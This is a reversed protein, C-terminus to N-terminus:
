RGAVLARFAQYDCIYDDEDYLDSALVALVSAANGFRVVRWLVPELLLGQDPRDLVFTHSGTGDDIDVEVTGSMAIM